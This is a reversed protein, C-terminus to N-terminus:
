YKKIIYSLKNFDVPSVYAYCIEEENMVQFGHELGITNFFLSLEKTNRYSFGTININNKNDILRYSSKIRSQEDIENLLENAKTGLKLLSEYDNIGNNKTMELVDYFIDYERKSIEVKEVDCKKLTEIPRNFIQSVQRGEDNESIISVLNNDETKLEFYKM